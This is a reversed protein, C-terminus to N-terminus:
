VTDINGAYALNNDKDVMLFVRPAVYALQDETLILDLQLYNANNEYFEPARHNSIM